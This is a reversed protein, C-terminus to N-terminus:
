DEVGGIRVYDEVDGGRGWVHITYIPLGRVLTDEVVTVEIGSLRFGELFGLLRAHSEKARVEAREQEGCVECPTCGGFTARFDCLKDYYELCKCYHMRLAGLYDVMRKRMSWNMRMAKKFDKPKEKRLQAFKYEWSNTDINRSM